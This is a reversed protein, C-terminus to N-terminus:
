RYARRRGEEELDAVRQQAAALDKKATEWQNLMTTRTSGYLPSSVDNLTQQLRNVRDTLQAVQDRAQQVRQRWDNQQEARIEDETKEKPAAPKAEAGAAEGEAPQTTAAEAAPAEAPAEGSTAGPNSLTGRGGGRLDDETIVKASGGRKAREKQRREQEKAALEGLSQACLMSGSVLVAALAGWLPRSSQRSM